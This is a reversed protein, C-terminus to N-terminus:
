GINNNLWRKSTEEYNDIDGDYIYKLLTLALFSEFTANPSIANDRLLTYMRTQLYVVITSEDVDKAMLNVFERISIICTEDIKSKYIDINFLDFAFHHSKIYDWIYSICDIVNIYSNAASFNGM